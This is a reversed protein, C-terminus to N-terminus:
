VPTAGPVQLVQWLPVVARPLGEPCTCVVAAQSLQWRVVAHSGAVKLWVPTAGPVQMVQWLPVEALPM